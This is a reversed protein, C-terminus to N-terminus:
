VFSAFKSRYDISFLLVLNSRKEFYICSQDSNLAVCFFWLDIPIFGAFTVLAFESMTLSQSNGIFSSFFFLIGGSSM